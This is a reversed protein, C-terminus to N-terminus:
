PANTRPKPGNSSGDGASPPAPWNLHKHLFAFTGRGNIAHPGQFFEIETRDGIGLADYLRRIKSYESAVWEDPAVSDLHGREVMFPRPVMLGGLDGYAFKSSLDFEFVEYTNYFPYSYVHNVSAKKRVMDNFEASAISLAYGDLLPPVRIATFGGYSLGYFAIRKADVFPLSGLWDLHRQHQALIISYMTKKLPYLKRQLQRFENGGRYFNHPAYTVFGREALTAAFGKYIPYAASKPDQDILDAPQGELGHQCVVVPRREGAPIGKPILLYGWCFVEPFVDLTVEYATWAKTERLLRTRPRIPEDGLPLKGIIENWLYDRFERCDDSWEEVTSVRAKSWFDRRDRESRVILSQTYDVLQDLQRRQRTAPDFTKRADVIAPGAEAIRAPHLGMGGLFAEIAAASGPGLTAGEPGVVLEIYPRSEAFAPCLERARTVERAVSEFSPTEISGPAAVALRGDRATPPGPVAVVESHEVILPRPAILSAIEADGFEDLLGFVNRYIPENWIRQRSQFYGSVMAADIKPEIAAAYFAILGGEGHGVVGIPLDNPAAAFWDVVALAKQVEYGIIHRGFDFAPRYVWERHTVNTMAIEPNGSWTDQRDILTPVVVLCGQEVLRHAIPAETKASNPAGSPILGAFAEPTTDADPLAVVRAVPARKPTLLLGEGEVGKWITWRVAHITYADTEALLAPSTTTGVLELEHVPDRVDIAGILGRFRARNSDVSREYIERSSLNRQWKAGRRAVSEETLRNAFADIGSRMRAPVDGEIELPATGPLTKPEAAPGVSAAALSLVLAWSLSLGVHLRNM